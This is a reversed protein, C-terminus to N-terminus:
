LSFNASFREMGYGAKCASSNVLLTIPRPGLLSLACVHSLFSTEQAHFWFECAICAWSNSSNNKQLLREVLDASLDNRLKLNIPFFQKAVGPTLDFTTLPTNVLSTLKFHQKPSFRSARSPQKLLAKSM